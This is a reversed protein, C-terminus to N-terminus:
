EILDLGLTGTLKSPYEPRTSERLRSQAIALRDRLSLDRTATRNQPKAIFEKLYASHRQWLGADRAQQRNLREQYWNSKLLKERQFLARFEKSELTMGEYEGLTMIHLLAKLPPCAANISGDEFYAQAALRQSNVISAIGEAFDRMGQKEPRLM